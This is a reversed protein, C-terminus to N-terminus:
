RRLVRDARGQDPGSSRWASRHNATRERDLRDIANAVSPTIDYADYKFPADRDIRVANMIMPLPHVLM